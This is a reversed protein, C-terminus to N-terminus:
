IGTWPRTVRRAVRGRATWGAFHKGCFEAKVLKSELLRSSCTIAFFLAPLPRVGLFGLFGALSTRVFFVRTFAFATDREMRGPEELGDILDRFAIACRSRM